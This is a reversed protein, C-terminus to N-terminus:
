VAAFFADFSVEIGPPDLVLLGVEVTSSVFTTPGTRAHHVVSRTVPDLILIHKIGETRM